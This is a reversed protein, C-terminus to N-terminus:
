PRRQADHLNGGLLKQADKCLLDSQRDRDAAQNPM